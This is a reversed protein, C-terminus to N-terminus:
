REQGIQKNEEEQQGDKATGKTGGKNNQQFTDEVWKKMALKGKDREKQAIVGEESKDLVDFYNGTTIWM